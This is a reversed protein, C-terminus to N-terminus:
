QRPRSRAVRRSLAFEYAAITEDTVRKPDCRSAVLRAGARGMEARRVSDLLLVDAIADALAIPDDPPVLRGTDPEDVIQELAPIRSAVVPRGVAAAEAAVYGMSEWRSPMACLASRALEAAVEKPGGVPGPMEVAKGVGLERVLGELFSRFSGGGPAGADAGVLVFRAEPVRELVRPVARILV